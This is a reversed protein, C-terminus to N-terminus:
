GIKANAGHALSPAALDRRPFRWLGFAIGYAGAGLVITRTASLALGGLRDGRSIREILDDDLRCIDAANM